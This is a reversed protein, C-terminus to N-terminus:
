LPDSRRRRAQRPRGPAGGGKVRGGAGRSGGLNKPGKNSVTAYGVRGGGGKKGM